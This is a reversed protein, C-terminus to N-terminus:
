CYRVSVPIQLSELLMLGARSGDVPRRRRKRMLPQWALLLRSAKGAGRKALKYKNVDRDGARAIM